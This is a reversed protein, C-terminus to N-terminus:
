DMSRPVVRTSMPRSPTESLGHVFEVLAQVNTKYIRASDEEFSYAGFAVCDFVTKPALSMILNKAAVSDTLDVAIIHADDVEALRWGKELQVCAFVDRRQAAIMKFLNAGIFGSAGTVLVPGDLARIHSALPM